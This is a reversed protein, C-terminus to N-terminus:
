RFFGSAVSVSPHIMVRKRGDSSQVGQQLHCVRFSVVPVEPVHLYERVPSQVNRGCCSM